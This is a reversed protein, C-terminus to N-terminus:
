KAIDGTYDIIGGINEVNHYGHARLYSEAQASRYGSACYLFIRTRQDPVTETIKEITSLPLSRSGPIHGKAYENSERVDLLVAGPTNQFRKVGQEIDMHFRWPKM